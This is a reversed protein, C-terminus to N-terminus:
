HDTILKLSVQVIIQYPQIISVIELDNHFQIISSSYHTGLTKKLGIGYANASFLTLNRLSKTKITKLADANMYNYFNCSSPTFHVM